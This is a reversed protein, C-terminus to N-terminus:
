GVQVVSASLIALADAARPTSTMARPPSASRAVLISVAKSSALEEGNNPLAKFAVGIIANGSSAM